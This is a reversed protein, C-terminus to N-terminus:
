NFSKYALRIGADQVLKPRWCALSSTPPSRQSAGGQISEPAESDRSGALKSLNLDGPSEVPEVRPMHQCASKSCSISNAPGTVSRSHTLGLVGPGSSKATSRMNSGFALFRGVDTRMVM